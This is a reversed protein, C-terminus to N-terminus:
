KHTPIIQVFVQHHLCDLFRHIVYMLNFSDQNQIIQIQLQNSMNIYLDQTTVLLVVVELIEKQDKYEKLVLPEKYARYAGAEKCERHVLQEKYDKHVLLVKLVLLDKYDGAERYVKFERYAEEAMTVLQDSEELLDVYGRLM